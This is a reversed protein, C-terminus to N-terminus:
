KKRNKFFFHSIKVCFFFFRTIFNHGSFFKKLKRQYSQCDSKEHKGYRIKEEMEDCVLTDSEHPMRLRPFRKNGIQYTDKAYEEKKGGCDRTNAREKEKFLFILFNEGFILFYRKLVCLGFPADTRAKKTTSVM